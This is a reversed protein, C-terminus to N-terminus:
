FFHFITFDITTYNLTNAYISKWDLWFPFVRCFVPLVAAMMIIISNYFINDATFRKLRGSRGLKPSLTDNPTRATYYNLCIINEDDYYSITRDDRSRLVVRDRFPRSYPRLFLLLQLSHVTCRCPLVCTCSGFASCVVGYMRRGSGRYARDLAHTRKRTIIIIYYEIGSQPRAWVCVCVCV